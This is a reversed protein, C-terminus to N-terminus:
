LYNREIKPWIDMLDTIKSGKDLTSGREPVVDASIALISGDKTQSLGSDYHWYGPIIIWIIGIVMNNSSSRMMQMSLLWPWITIAPWTIDEPVGDQFVVQVKPIMWSWSLVQCWTLRQGVNFSLFQTTVCRTLKRTGSVLGLGLFLCAQLPIPGEFWFEVFTRSGPYLEQLQVTSFTM